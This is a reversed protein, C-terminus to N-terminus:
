WPSDEWPEVNDHEVLEAARAICYDWARSDFLGAWDLVDACLLWFRMRLNKM